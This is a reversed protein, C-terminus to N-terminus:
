LHNNELKHKAQKQTKNSFKGFEAKRQNYVQSDETTPCPSQM